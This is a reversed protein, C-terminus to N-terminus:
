NDASDTQRDLQVFSTADSLLLAFSRLRPIHACIIMAAITIPVALIAGAVGWIWTWILLAILIVLTSLSM